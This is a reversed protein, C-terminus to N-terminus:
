RDGDSSIIDTSDVDVVVRTITDWHSLPIRRGETRAIPVRMEAIVVGQDVLVTEETAANRILSTM